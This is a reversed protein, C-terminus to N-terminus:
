VRLSNTRLHQYDSDNLRRKLAKSDEMIGQKHWEWHMEPPLSAVRVMSGLGSTRSFDAQASRNADFLADVKTITEIIMNDGDRVFWVERDDTKEFLVRDSM